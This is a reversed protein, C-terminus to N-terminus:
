HSCTALATGVLASRPCINRLRDVQVGKVEDTPVSTPTVEASVEKAHNPHGVFEGLVDRKASKLAVSSHCPRLCSPQEGSPDLPILLQGGLCIGSPKSGSLREVLDELMWRSYWTM